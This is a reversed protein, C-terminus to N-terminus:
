AQVCQAESHFSELVDGCEVDVFAGGPRVIQPGEERRMVSM